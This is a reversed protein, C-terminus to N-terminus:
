RTVELAPLEVVFSNGEIGKRKAEAAILEALNVSGIVGIFAECFDPAPTVDLVTVKARTGFDDPTLEVSVQGTHEQCGGGTRYSFDFQGGPSLSASSLSWMENDAPAPNEVDGSFRVDGLRVGPLSVTAANVNPLAGVMARLDASGNVPIMAECPDPASARDLVELRARRRYGEGLIDVLKTEATHTACGGGVSYGFRLTGTHYEFSSLEVPQGFGEEEESGGQSPESSRLEPDDQQISPETACGTAFSALLTLGVLGGVYAKM